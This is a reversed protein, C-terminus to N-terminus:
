CSVECFDPITIFGLHNQNKDQIELDLIGEDPAYEIPTTVKVFYHMERIQRMDSRLRRLQLCEQEKPYKDKIGVKINKIQKWDNALWKYVQKGISREIATWFDYERGKIQFNNENLITYNPFKKEKTMKKWPLNEITNLM